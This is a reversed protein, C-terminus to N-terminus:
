QQFSSLTIVCLMTLNPYSVLPNGSSSSPVDLPMTKGQDDRQIATERKRESKSWLLSGAMGGWGTCNSKSDQSRRLPLDLPNRYTGSNLPKREM